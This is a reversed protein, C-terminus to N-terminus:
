IYIYHYSTILYIFISLSIISGRATKNPSISLSLSLSLSLVCIYACMYLYTFHKKPTYIYTSTLTNLILLDCCIIITSAHKNDVVPVSVPFFTSLDRLFFSKGGLWKNVSNRFIVWEYIIFKCKRNKFLHNEMANNCLWFTMDQFYDIIFMTSACPKGNLPDPDFNPLWTPDKSM